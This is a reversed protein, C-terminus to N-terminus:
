ALDEYESFCPDPASLSGYCISAAERCGCDCNNVHECGNCMDPLDYTNKAFTDWYTKDSIIETDFIHGVRRPSHNCARVYGSPDIVFFDKAAACQSGIRLRECNEIKDSILCLPYETGLSGLRKSKSLVEEAIDIIGRLEERSLSLEDHYSVGRGGYLVRNILITDAGAILGNAITEYLEHYNKSTVTINVTTDVSLEKAHSLWRLVNSPTNTMSGTHYEFTTLGPLSLSLHVNLDKFISLFYDSMMEGNSILVIKEDKNLSTHNRVYYLLDVLCDKLLPEGGSISVLMVGHNELIHLAKKWDELGIENHRDYHLKPNVTNEWPCSCFLCKHNCSYTMELVANIPLLQAKM